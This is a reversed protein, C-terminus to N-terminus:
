DGTAERYLWDRAAAKAKLKKSIREIASKQVESYDIVVHEPFPEPDSYVPLELATCERVSVALVGVSALRLTATYHQWAPEPEILDGDYGSLRLEDKPTPRFAQSTVRGHQVFSPHVQRLFLTDDTV